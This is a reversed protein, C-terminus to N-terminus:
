LNNEDTLEINLKEDTGLTVRAPYDSVIREAEDRGNLQTYDQMWELWQNADTTWLPPEGPHEFLIGRKRFLRKYKRITRDDVGAIDEIARNVADAKLVEGHNEQIRRVIQRAKEVTESGKQMTNSNKHTHSDGSESLALVRDIKEEIRELRDQDTYELIADRGLESMSKGTTDSWEQLQQYEADDLYIQLRNTRESM